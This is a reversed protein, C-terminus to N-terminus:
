AAAADAHPVAAVPADWDIRYGAQWAMKEPKNMKMIVPLLIDRLVRGVPGAAKNSNTRNANKIIREVRPRRLNEYARFAEAYPLDRLSRALQVASEIALSAGQGSSSSAAHAADGILVMRGRSWAPVTPMNEMPGGIMLDAPDTRRLLDKAPVRDDTFAESLVSLWKEPSVKGAEAATMPEPHPLNVYWVGTSDEHLQYGLFARKGFTMHMKGRTSPLGSNRVPAGFSFLGGYHPRPANPDILTRVTSRIGDAGILVDAQAQTGDEFHATVGDATEEAAVLRKGHVIRIGRRAAEDYLTRYLDARWVFRSSEMGAPSGFEGLKKGNWSQLVIETTPTGVDRVLDGVGITDLASLGNPALGLGGRVSDATGQYAEYVTAEIGAKHLAIAAVPGGIGGGIVLASRITTSTM